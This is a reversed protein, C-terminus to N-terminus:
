PLPVVTRAPPGAGRGHHMRGRTRHIVAEGIVQLNFLVADFVVADGAFQEFSRGQVSRGVKEGAEILDDLYLLWDRSV